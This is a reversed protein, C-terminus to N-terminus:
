IPLPTNQKIAKLILNTKVNAVVPIRFLFDDLFRNYADKNPCCVRLHYDADGATAFCDIVEARHRVADVFTHLKDPEHRSLYVQVMAEFHLGCAEADLIARYGEITGSAELAKLRRWCASTSIAVADALDQNSIRGNRQVHRLIDIDTKEPM